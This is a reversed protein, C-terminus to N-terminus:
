RNIRIKVSMGNSGRLIYFGSEYRPYVVETSDAVDITEVQQGAMNYVAFSVGALDRFAIFRGDSYVTGGGLASEIGTSKDGILINVNQAATLGNSEAMLTFSHKGNALPRVTLTKGSLTVEAALTQPAEDLLATGPISLNIEAPNGDKDEVSKTLDFTYESDCEALEPLVIDEFNIEPAYKDPMLAIAPFWFYKDLEITHKMEGTTADVFHLRNSLAATGFGPTSCYVWTDTRPDYNPTGYGMSYTHDPESGHKYLMTLTSPDEVKDIDWRILDGTSGNFNGTSWFLTNTKTSARLNGPRWSGSSCGISGATVTLVDGLELTEPDIPQLSKSCGIWVRGDLSRAVTQIGSIDITKVVEDAETDIVYLASGVHVAFVYKGAKVMDGMQGSRGTDIGEIDSEAVSISEDTMYMVRVGKTHSLYVKGPNIGVCARGDGGIEDVSGIHKLTSADAVVVRGGTKDRTDGADWAQKSMVILKGAYITAFQSTAGFAKNDNQNGYVRYFVQGDEDIYNISGSTHTFWEENLWFMGDAFDDAPKNDPDVGKVRVTYETKVDTGPVSLTMTTEGARHAVLGKINTYISVISEDAFEAKFNAFDAGEPEYKPTILTCGMNEMEITEGVPYEALYIGTVPNAVFTSVKMPTDTYIRRVETKGEGWDKRINLYPLVLAESPSTATIRLQMAGQAANPIYGSYNNTTTENDPERVEASYKAGYLNPGEDCVNALMPVLRQVSSGNKDTATNLEVEELTWIGLQDAPRLYFTYDKEAPATADAALYELSIRDGSSVSTNWDAESDNVFIKWVSEARNIQWHDYTSSGKADAYEGSATAVGDTLSLTEDGISVASSNDGNTDFGFAVFAGSGDALAYFRPDLALASRIVGAVDTDGAISVAETLNDLALDQNWYISLGVFSEGEGLTNKYPDPAAAFGPAVSMASLAALFVKLTNM